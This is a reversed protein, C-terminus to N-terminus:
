VTSLTVTSVPPVRVLAAVFIRVTDLVRAVIPVPTKEPDVDQIKFLIAVAPVPM